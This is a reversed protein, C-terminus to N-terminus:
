AGVVAGHHLLLMGSKSDPPAPAFGAPAVLEPVHHLLFVARQWRASHPHLDRRGRWWRYNLLLIRPRYGRSTPAVGVRHVVPGFHVLLVPPRPGGLGPAVGPPGELFNGPELSSLTGGRQPRPAPRHLDPSGSWSGYTLPLGSRHCRLFPPEIGEPDVVGAYYLLVTRPRPLASTGPCYRAGAGAGRM